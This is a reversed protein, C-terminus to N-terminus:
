DDELHERFLQFKIYEIKGLQDYISSVSGVWQWELEHADDEVLVAIDIIKGNNAADLLKTLLHVIEATDKRPLPVLSLKPPEDM